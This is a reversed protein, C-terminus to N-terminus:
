VVVVLQAITCIPVKTKLKQQTYRTNNPSDISGVVIKGIVKYSAANIAYRVIVSFFQNIELSLSM